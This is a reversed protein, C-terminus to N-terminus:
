LISATSVDFLSALFPGPCNIRLKMLSCIFQQFLSLKGTGEAPMTTVVHNFLAKLIKFNPLGTLLM